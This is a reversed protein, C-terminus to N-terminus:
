GVSACTRVELRSHRLFYGSNPPAIAVPMIVHAFPTQGPVYSGYGTPGATPAGGITTTPVVPSGAVGYACVAFSADHEADAVHTM